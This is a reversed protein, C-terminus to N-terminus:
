HLGPFYPDFRITFDESFDVLQIKFDEFYDVFQWKGCKDPYSKVVQVTLNEHSTVVKVRFDPYQDVIKVQGWLKIGKCTCDDAIPGGSRTFAALSIFTLLLLIIRKM